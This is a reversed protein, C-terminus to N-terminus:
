SLTSFHFMESGTVLEFLEQNFLFIICNLNKKYLIYAYEM